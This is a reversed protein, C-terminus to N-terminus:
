PTPEKYPELEFEQFRSMTPNVAVTCTFRGDTGVVRVDYYQQAGGICEEYIRQIVVLKPCDASRGADGARFGPVTMGHWARLTLEAGIEYKFLPLESM